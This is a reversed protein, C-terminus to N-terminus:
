ETYYYSIGNKYLKYGVLKTLPSAALDLVTTTGLDYNLNINAARFAKSVFDSCYSENKYNTVFLFNYPDGLMSVAENFIAYSQEKTLEIRFIYYNPYYTIDDWSNSNIFYSKNYTGDLTTELTTDKSFCFFQDEYAMGCIAVHGGITYTVFEHLLPSTPAGSTTLIIDCFNGPNLYKGSSYYDTDNHYYFKNNSTSKVEDLISNELFEDLKQKIIVNEYISTILVFLFTPLLVFFAIKKFIKM